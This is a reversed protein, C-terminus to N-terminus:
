GRTFLSKFFEGILRFFHSIANLIISGLSSRVVERMLEEPHNVFDAGYKEYMSKTKEIIKDVRFGMDELSTVLDVIMAANEKSIEINYKERSEAIANEIGAESNLSGDAAKEQIFDFAELIVSEDVNDFSEFIRELNDSLLETIRSTDFGAVAVPIEAHLSAGAHSNIGGGLPGALFTIVLLLAIFVKKNKHRM